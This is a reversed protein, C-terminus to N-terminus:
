SVPQKDQVSFTEFHFGPQIPLHWVDFYWSPWGCVHDSHLWLSHATVLLCNLSSWHLSIPSFSVHMLCRPESKAFFLSPASFLSDFATIWNNLSIIMCVPLSWKSIWGSDNWWWAPLRWCCQFANRKRSTQFLVWHLGQLLQEPHFLSQGASEYSGHRHPLFSSDTFHSCIGLIFPEFCHNRVWPWPLSSSSQILMIGESWRISSWRLILWQSFLLAECHSGYMYHMCILQSAISNSGASYAIQLFSTIDVTPLVCFCLNSVRAMRWHMALPLALLLAYHLCFFTAWWHLGTRPWKSDKSQFGSLKLVLPLWSQAYTGAFTIM